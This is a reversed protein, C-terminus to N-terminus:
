QIWLLANKHCYVDTQHRANNVCFYVKRASIDTMRSRLSIVKYISVLLHFDLCYLFSHTESPPPPTLPFHIPTRSLCSADRRLGHCPEQAIQKNWVGIWEGHFWFFPSENRKNVISGVLVVELIRRSFKYNMNGVTDPVWGWKMHIVACTIQGVASSITPQINM